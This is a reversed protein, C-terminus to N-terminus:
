IGYNFSEADSIQDEKNILGIYKEVTEIAESNKSHLAKAREVISKQKKKSLAHQEIYKLFDALDNLGMMYYTHINKRAISRLQAWNSEKISCKIKKSCKRAASIFFKLM